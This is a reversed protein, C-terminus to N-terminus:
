GEPILGDTGVVYVCAEIVNKKIQPVALALRDLTHYQISRSRAEGAHSALHRRVIKQLVFEFIGIQEDSEILWQM